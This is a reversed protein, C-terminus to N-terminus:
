SNSMSVVDSMDPSGKQVTNIITLFRIGKMENLKINKSELIQNFPHFLEIWTTDEFYPLGGLITVAIVLSWTGNSYNKTKTKFGSYWYYSCTSFHIFFYFPKILLSKSRGEQKWILMKLLASRWHIVWSLVIIEANKM